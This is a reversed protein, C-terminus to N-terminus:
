AGLQMAGLAASALMLLGIAIGGAGAIGVWFPTQLKALEDAAQKGVVNKEFRVTADRIRRRFIIVMLGVLVAIGGVILNPLITSSEYM